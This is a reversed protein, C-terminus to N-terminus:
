AQAQSAMRAPANLAGYADYGATRQALEFFLGGEINETYIHLYDGSPSRDFLVGAERLRALLAPDLDIRTALDDYYNDSIPVFRTGAARLRAVSEFIDDCRMAIHHVAGGGTVSLTRATRTRQSLSVNLVLRVSRDANAVGRSRILGFPDALELSEGPELGLVARTFLVWTDLQDVALGLAVHDIQMLGADASAASADEELIFDAEYLGNTGLSEAVFHILNGGPAVIAPVRLEDPGVPSDHRQSRMTTARDVAAQPDACRVGLACVSTGHAEFRSRAFSDPQANVILNIEGQRYLVVAKSRHRGVRRFGLQGFLTGLVLASTEDAAFEIFSLGSLAPVAPPSFLEVRQAYAPEDAAPALRRKAESELYLLSRMADVATRRNPTERFVDNFIELSLPGTYGARLVQEFFGIVEFDGQGPFSRHHRAWQLVDMSLLPADAMQLFFIKDGPIAAIGTPDDKLSLTHFSDLILGLNPHDAERVINWAEGYLSTFRGWALAEFGVRLNRRAAREALEHLQAAALAPDDVALLSTNSCCLMLPAGMAEMLDFKREARELSRRFQAEPMGEFDRFPQYLDISLGLDATIRGLEDASGKFNVFDAEFLEIGDFGAASVAELKQRLTGSLSVTAISRHM